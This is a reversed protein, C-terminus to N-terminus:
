RGFRRLSRYSWWRLAAGVVACALAIWKHHFLYAFAAVLLIEMGLLKFLWALAFARNVQPALKGVLTAHAWLLALTFYAALTVGVYIPANREPEELFARVTIPLLAVFGLFALNLATGVRDIRALRAMVHRHEIWAGGVLLFAMFYVLLPLSWAQWLGQGPVSQPRIELASLTIAIAFVGDSLLVMRELYRHGLDDAHPIIEDEPQRTDNM